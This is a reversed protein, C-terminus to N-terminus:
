GFLARAGNEDRLVRERREVLGVHRERRVVHQRLETAPDDEQRVALVALAEVDLSEQPAKSATAACSRRREARLHALSPMGITPSSGATVSVYRSSYTCASPLPRWPRRPAAARLLVETSAEALQRRTALGAARVVRRRQAEETVAGLAGGLGRRLRLPLADKAREADVDLERRGAAAAHAAGETVFGLVDLLRAADELHAPLLRQGPVLVLTGRVEDGPVRASALDLAEAAEDRPM